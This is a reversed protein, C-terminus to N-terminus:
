GEIKRKEASRKFAWNVLCDFRVEGLGDKDMRVFEEAEDYGDGVHKRIESQSEPDCFRDKSM